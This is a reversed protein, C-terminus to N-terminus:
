QMSSARSQLGDYPYVKPEAANGYTVNLNYGHPNAGSIDFHHGINFKSAGLKPSPLATIICLM